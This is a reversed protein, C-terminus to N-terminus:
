ASRRTFIARRDAGGLTKGSQGYAMVTAEVTRYAAGLGTSPVIGCLAPRKSREIRPGQAQRLSLGACLLASRGNSVRGRLRDFPCDRVFCPA